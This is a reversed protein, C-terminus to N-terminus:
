THGWDFSCDYIGGLVSTSWETRIGVDCQTFSCDEIKPSAGELEIGISNEVFHCDTILPSFESGTLHIGTTTEIFHCSQITDRIASDYQNQIGSLLGSFVMNRILAASPLSWYKLGIATGDSGFFGSGEQDSDIRVTLGTEYNEIDLGVGNSPITISCNQLNVSSNDVNNEEAGAITTNSFSMSGSNSVQIGAWTQASVSSVFSSSDAYVVAGDIELVSDLGWSCDAKDFSISSGEEVIISVSDGVAVSGSINLSSGGKVRIVSNPFITTLTNPEISVETGDDITITGSLYAIKKLVADSTVSSPLSSCMQLLIGDGPLMEIPVSEGNGLYLTKDYDYFLSVYTGFNSYAGASPYLALRQTDFAPYYTGYNDPMVDLFSGIGGANFFYNSRRNVLMFYPIDSDTFLGCEVYCGYPGAQATDVDQVSDLMVDNLVIADCDSGDSTQSITFADHWDM